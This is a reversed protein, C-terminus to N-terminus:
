SMRLKVLIGVSLHFSVMCLHFAANEGHDMARCRSETKKEKRSLFNKKKKRLMQCVERPFSKQQMLFIKFTDYVSQYVPRPLEMFACFKRIGQLGVGLLRMALIIRRNIEYANKVYPCSPIETKDCNKCSVVIKFGLGRKSSETFSVESHCVKCVVVNSIAAFVAVFNIINYGFTPDVEIDTVDRGKLKKASASVDLDEPKEIEYRNLPRKNKKTPRKEYSDFGQAGKKERCNKRGSM